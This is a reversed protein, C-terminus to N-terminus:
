GNLRIGEKFFLVLFGFCYSIIWDNSNPSHTYSVGPKLTWLVRQQIYRM